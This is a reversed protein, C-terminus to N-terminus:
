EQDLKDKVNKILLLVEFVSNFLKNQVEDESLLIAEVM